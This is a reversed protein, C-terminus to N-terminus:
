TSCFKCKCEEYDESLKSRIPEDLNLVLIDSQVVVSTRTGAGILADLDKFFDDQNIKPSVDQADSVGRARQAKSSSGTANGADSSSM